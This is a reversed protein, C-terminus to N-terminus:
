AVAPEPDNAWRYQRCFEALSITDQGRATQVVAVLCDPANQPWIVHGDPSVCCGQGERFPVLLIAPKRSKLSGIRVRGDESASALTRSKGRWSLLVSPPPTGKSLLSCAGTEGDLCHLGSDAGGTALVAGDGSWTLHPRWQRTRRCKADIGVDRGELIESAAFCGM